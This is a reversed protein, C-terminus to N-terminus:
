SAEAELEPEPEPERPAPVQAGVDLADLERETLQWPQPEQAAEREDRAAQAQEAESASCTAGTRSSSARGRIAPATTGPRSSRRPRQPDHAALAAEWRDAIQEASQARGRDAAHRDPAGHRRGERSRHHARARARATPHTTSVAQPEKRSHPAAPAAQARETARQAQIGATVTATFAAMERASAQNRPGNQRHPGTVYALAAALRDAPWGKRTALCREGARRGQEAPPPAPLRPCHSPRTLPRPQGPPSGSADHPSTRTTVARPVPTCDPCYRATSGPRRQDGAGPGPRRPPHPGPALQRRSRATSALLRAGRATGHEALREPWTGPSPTGPTTGPTGTRRIWICSSFLGPDGAAGSM